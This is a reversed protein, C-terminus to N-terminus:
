DETLIRFFAKPETAENTLYPSAVNQWTQLDGSKQLTGESATVTIVTVGPLPVADIPASAQGETTNYASVAIRYAKGVILWDVTWSTADVVQIRQAATTGDTPWVYLYYGVVNETTPNPDWAVSVGPGTYSRSINVVPAAAAQTVLIAIVVHKIM